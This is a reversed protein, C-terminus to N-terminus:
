ITVLQLVWDSDVGGSSPPVFTKNGELSIKETEWTLADRPSFWNVIASKANGRKAINSLELEFSDGHGVYVWYHTSASSLAALRRDSEWTLAGNANTVFSRDPELGRYIHAPLDIFLHQLHQAQSAGPFDLEDRWSINAPQSLQPEIFLDPRALLSPPDYLQWIGHAGYTFGCGGSFVGYYLGHRVDSANWVPRSTNFGNNAGEYHNELDVVPGSFAARMAEINEYNKSADWSAIATMMADVSGPDPTAHGSQIGDMSLTGLSGNIYQV